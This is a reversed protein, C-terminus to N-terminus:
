ITGDDTTGGETHEQVWHEWRGNEDRRVYLKRGSRSTFVYGGVVPEMTLQGSKIDQLRYTIATLEDDTLDAWSTKPEPYRKATEMIALCARREDQDIKELSPWLDRMTAFAYRTDRHRQEGASVSTATSTSPADVTTPVPTFPVPAAPPRAGEDSLPGPAPSATGRDIRPAPAPLGVVSLSAAADLAASPAAPAALADPALVVDLVPVTYRHPPQGRRKAVRQELFLRAAALHEARRQALGLALEVASALEGSAYYSGTVLRWVGFVAAVEPVILSLRTVAECKREGEVTCVCPQPEDGRTETFGDCRRQCGGESWLEYHQSFALDAPPLLVDLSTRATLVEHEDLGTSPNRWPRAEGGFVRAVEDILSARPSTFRFGKLARPHDGTNEGLRIHGIVAVRRQQDIIPM